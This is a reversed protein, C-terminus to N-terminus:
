PGGRERAVPACQGVAAPHPVSDEGKLVFGDLPRFRGPRFRGPRFRGIRHVMAQKPPQSWVASPSPARGLGEGAGAFGPARGLGRLQGRLCCNVCSTRRESLSTGTAYLWLCRSWVGIPSVAGRCWLQHTLEVNTSRRPGKEGPVGGGAHRRGRAMLLVSVHQLRSPM